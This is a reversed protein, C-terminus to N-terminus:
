PSAVRVRADVVEVQFTDIKLAPIGNVCGTTLEYKWDCGSCAVNVAHLTGAALSAGCRVCADEVAFIRGNSNFLAVPMGAISVVIGCGAPVQSLAAVEVFNEM